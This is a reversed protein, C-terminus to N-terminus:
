YHIPGNEHFRQFRVPKEKYNFPYHEFLFYSVHAIQVVNSIEAYDGVDVMSFRGQGVAKYLLCPKYLRAVHLLLVEVVHINLTLAADRDLELRGTQLILRLVTLLIYEVEDICRSM